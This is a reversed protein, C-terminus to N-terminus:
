ALLCERCYQMCRALEANLDSGEPIPYEFELTAQFGWKNDRMLQLVEKIPTDGQGLPVNPGNDRKRDKIHVHTIRDHHKKLFPVPSENQGAIYHGIDLNVANFKAYSLVTEFEAASTTAHGHYGIPMKHKDAFQGIRKTEEISIETSLASAGVAKSVQFCYDVEEDSMNFIGDWKIIQLGIGAADFKRRFEKVKDLSVGSRWKRTEEAAARQAAQQEPTLAARGGGRRGREGGGTRAGTAEAGAPPSAGREGGGQGGAGRGAGGARGRNGGAAAAAVAAPSGLFLEIPQARLEMGSVGLQQCRAVIDEPTMYNGTKFNYPVNMGVQVGAWKSNPKAQAQAFAAAPDLMLTGPLGALTIKGFDRRSYSM